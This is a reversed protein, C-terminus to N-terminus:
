PREFPGIDFANGQPRSIGDADDPVFARLDAGRDVTPSGIPSQMTLSRRPLRSYRFCRAGTPRGGIMPSALSLLSPHFDLRALNRFLPSGSVGHSQYGRAPLENWPVVADDLLCVDGSEDFLNHDMVLGGAAGHSVSVVARRVANRYFVNNLVQPRTNGTAPDSSKANVMSVLFSVDCDLMLSNVDV